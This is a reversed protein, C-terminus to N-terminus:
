DSRDNPRAGCGDEGGGDGGDGFLTASLLQSDALQDVVVTGNRDPGIM